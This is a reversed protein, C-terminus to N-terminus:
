KGEDMNIGLMAILAAVLDGDREDDRVIGQRRTDADLRGNCFPVGFYQLNLDLLDDSSKKVLEQRGQRDETNVCNYFPLGFYDTGWIANSLGGIVGKRIMPLFAELAIGSYPTIDSMPVVRRLISRHLICTELKEAQKRAWKWPLARGWALVTDGGPLAQLIGAVAYHLRPAFYDFRSSNHPKYVVTDQPDIRDLLAKVTRLFKQKGREHHFSFLTPAAIIWDASFEPFIPHRAYPLGIEVVEIGRYREQAQRRQVLFDMFRGSPVCVTTIGFQKLYRDHKEVGAMALTMLGIITSAALSSKIHDALDESYPFQHVVLLSTEAPEGISLIDAGYQRCLDLFIRNAGATKKRTGPDAETPLIAIRLTQGLARVAALVATASRFYGIVFILDYRKM